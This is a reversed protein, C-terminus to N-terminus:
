NRLADVDVTSGVARAVIGTYAAGLVLMVIGGFVIAQGVEGPASNMELLRLFAVDVVVATVVGLVLAMVLPVLTFVMWAKRQTNVSTGMASLVAQLRQRQSASIVAAVIVFVAAVLVTCWAAIRFLDVVQDAAYMRASKSTEATKVTAYPDIALVSTSLKGPANPVVVLQTANEIPPPAQGDRLAHVPKGGAVLQGIISLNEVNPHAAEGPVCNADFVSRVADCQAFYENNAYTLVHGGVAPAVQAAQNTEIVAAPDDSKYGVGEGGLYVVLQSTILTTLSAALVALGIASPGRSASKSEQALRSGGLLGASGVNKVLLGAQRSLYEVAPRFFLACLVLGIIGVFLPLGNVIEVLQDRFVPAVIMLGIGAGWGITQTVSGSRQTTKKDHLATVFCFVTSLAATAFVPWNYVSLEGPFWEVQAPMIKRMMTGALPAITLGVIWGALVVTAVEAAAIIRATRHSIGAAILHGLSKKRNRSLLQSATAASILCPIAAVLACILLLVNTTQDLDPDRLLQYQNEQMGDIPGFGSVHYTPAGFTESSAIGTNAVEEATGGIWAVLEHPRRLGEDDVTGVHKGPFLNEDVKNNRDAMAKELAPSAFYEGPAPLHPIGPPPDIPSGDGTPPSVLIVIVQQGDLVRLQRVVEVQQHQGEETFINHPARQEARDTASSVVTPLGSAIALFMAAIITALIAGITERSRGRLAIKIGIAFARMMVKPRGLM